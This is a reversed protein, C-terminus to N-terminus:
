AAAEEDAPKFLRAGPRRVHHPPLAKEFGTLSRAFSRLTTVAEDPQAIHCVLDLLLMAQRALLLHQGEGDAIWTEAARGLSNRFDSVTPTRTQSDPNKTDPQVKPDDPM